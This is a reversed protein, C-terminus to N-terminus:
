MKPNSSYGMSVGMQMQERGGRGHGCRRRHSEELREDQVPGANEQLGLDLPKNEITSPIVERRFCTRTYFGRTLRSSTPSSMNPAMGM